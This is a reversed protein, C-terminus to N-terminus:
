PYNGATAVEIEEVARGVEVEEEGGEEGAEVGVTDGQRVERDEEGVERDDGEGGEDRKSKRM